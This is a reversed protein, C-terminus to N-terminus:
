KAMWFREQSFHRNLYTNQLFSIGPGQATPLISQAPGATQCCCGRHPEGKCTKFEGKSKCTKGYIKRPKRPGRPVDEKTRWDMRRDTRLVFRFLRYLRIFWGLVRMCNGFFPHFYRIEHFFPSLLYLSLGCSAGLLIYVPWFVSVTWKLVFVFFCGALSPGLLRPM